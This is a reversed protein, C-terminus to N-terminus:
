LLGNLFARIKGYYARGFSKYGDISPHLNNTGVYGKLNNTSYESVDESTKGFCGYRDLYAGHALCTVNAHYKGNDFVELLAKDLRQINRLFIESSSYANDFYPNGPAPLGIAIKCNPFGNNSSLIADVFIKAKNIIGDISDQSQMLNDGHTVDNTGLCIVVYNLEQGRLYTNM